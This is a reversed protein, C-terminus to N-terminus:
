KVWRRLHSWTEAREAKHLTQIYTLRFRIAWQRSKYSINLTFLPTSNLCLRSIPMSLQGTIRYAVFISRLNTSSYSFSKSWAFAKGGCGLGRCRTLARKWVSCYWGTGHTVLLAEMCFLVIEQQRDYLILITSSFDISVNTRTFGLLTM